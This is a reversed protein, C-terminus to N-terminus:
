VAAGSDELPCVGLVYAQAGQPKGTGKQLFPLRSVIRPAGESKALTTWWSRVTDDSDVTPVIGIMWPAKAMAGLVQAESDYQAIPTASGFYFRALDAFEGSGSDGCIAISLPGQMRTFASILERWIRVVVEAPLDGSHRTLLRRIVQAERAPRLGTQRRDGGARKGAIVEGVLQAREMLLDHVRDDIRDIERRANALKSIGDTMQELRVLDRPKM